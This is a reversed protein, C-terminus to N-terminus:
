PRWAKVLTVLDQVHEPPTEPTIGHGLNFVFAGTGLTDLIRAVADRLVTGGAILVQPDLNGQLSVQGQLNDRAWELPVDTDLSLADAGCEVAFDRYSEGAGRPFLIIPVDPHVAKVRRTIEKAPELCWRRLDDGSWVGAWSDFLQLAEAGAAIQAILYDATAIVLLDILNQFDKEMEKAWRKGAVFDRTSGGELMYSAVTWPAGAFGIVATEAPLEERLRGLTGYIPALIDHLRDVSLRSLGSADGLPELRPGVGDEFWVKQGLAHPIVLIDAFLIAADLGFRRIPQLTVEVALEPTLCLDLFDGAQARTKRYEPLYRGAQRMLWIPPPALTEGKLARILIKEDSQM